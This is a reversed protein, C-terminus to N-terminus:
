GALQLLFRPHEGVFLAEVGGKELGRSLALLDDASDPRASLGVDDTHYLSRESEKGLGM